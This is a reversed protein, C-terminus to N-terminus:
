RVVQLSFATLPYPLPDGRAATGDGLRKAEAVPDPPVGEALAVVLTGTGQPRLRLSVQEPGLLRPKGGVSGDSQVGLPEDQTDDIWWVMLRGSGPTWELEIPGSATLGTKLGEGLEARVPSVPALGVGSLEVVPRSTTEGKMMTGGSGADDTGRGVLVGALLGAALWGMSMLMGRRSEPASNAAPLAPSPPPEIAAPRREGPPTARASLRARIAADTNVPVEADQVEDFASQVVLHDLHEAAREALATKIRDDVDTPVDEDPLEDFLQKLFDTEM